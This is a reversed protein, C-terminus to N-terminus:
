NAKSNIHKKISINYLVCETNGHKFTFHWYGNKKFRINNYMDNYKGFM